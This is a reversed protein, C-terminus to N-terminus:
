WSVETGSNYDSADEVSSNGLANLTQSGSLQLLNEEFSIRMQEVVPTEYISKNM